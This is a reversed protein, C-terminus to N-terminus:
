CLSMKRYFDVADESTINDFLSKITDVPDPDDKNNQMRQRQLSDDGYLNFRDNETPQHTCKEMVIKRIKMCLGKPHSLDIINRVLQECDCETIQARQKYDKRYDNDHFIDYYIRRFTTIMYPKLMSILGNTLEELRCDMKWKRTNKHVDELVYFSFPDYESSKPLPLYIINNMGYINVIYRDISVSMPFLMSGYNLFLQFFNAYVFPEYKEPHCTNLTLSAGFREIDDIDLYSNIYGQYFILRQEMPSLGQSIITTMKKENYEKATFIEKLKEIHNQVLELYKALGLTGMLSVRTKKMHNLTKSYTRSTKLIELCEEFVPYAQEPESFMNLLHMRKEESIAALLAYEQETPEQFIEINKVPRYTGKKEEPQIEIDSNQVLKPVPKPKYEIKKSTPLNQLSAYVENKAIEIDLRAKIAEYDEFPHECKACNHEELHTIKTTKFQCRLCTFLVDNYHKTVKRHLKLKAENEFKKGCVDCM